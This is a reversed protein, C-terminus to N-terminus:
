FKSRLVPHDTEITKCKKKPLIRDKESIDAFEYVNNEKKILNFKKKPVGAKSPTLRFKKQKQLNVRKVFADKVKM